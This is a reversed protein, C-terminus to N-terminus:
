DFNLQDNFVVTDVQWTGSPRYVWFKWVIPHKEFRQVYLLRVLSEGFKDQRYLEFGVIKGYIPLVSQTQRKLADVQISQTSMPSKRFLEDYAPGVEGNGLRTLFAEAISVPTRVAPAQGNVRVTSLLVVALLLMRRM